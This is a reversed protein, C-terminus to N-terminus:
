GIFRAAGALIADRVGAVAPLYHSQKRHVLHIPWSMQGMGPVERVPMRKELLSPFVVARGLGEQVGRIIGEEDYLFTRSYRDPKVRQRKLFESTTADEPRTDLYIDSRTKYQTSEICVLKQLGLPTAVLDRNQFKRVTVLLDLEARLLMAAQNAVPTIDQTALYRVNVKPNARLFPAISPTVITHLVSTYGAIRVLGMPEKSESKTLDEMLETELLEKTQAFRLLRRGAETLEIGTPKRLFVATGLHSELGQIRRSLAPQTINLRAAAATFNGLAAVVQFAHLNDSNIQM